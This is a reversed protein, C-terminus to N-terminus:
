TGLYNDKYMTKGIFKLNPIVTVEYSPRLNDNAGYKWDIFNNKYNFFDFFVSYSSTAQFPYEVRAKHKREFRNATPTCPKFDVRNTSNNLFNISSRQYYSSYFDM